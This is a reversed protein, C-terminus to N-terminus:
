HLDQILLINNAITAGDFSFVGSGSANYAGMYYVGEETDSEYSGSYVGLPATYAGEYQSEYTATYGSSYYPGESSAQPNPNEGASGYTQRYAASFVGQFGLSYIGVYSWSAIVQIDLEKVQTTWKLTKVTTHSSNVVLEGDSM